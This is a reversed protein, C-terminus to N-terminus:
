KKLGMLSKFSQLNISYNSVFIHIVLFFNNHLQIFFFVLSRIRFFILSIIFFNRAHIGVVIFRRM